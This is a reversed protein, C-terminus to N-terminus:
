FERPEPEPSMAEAAETPTMPQGGEETAPAPTPVEEAVPAAPSLESEIAEAAAVLVDNVTEPTTPEPTGVTSTDIEDTSTAPDSKVFDILEDQTQTPNTPDNESAAEEVEPAVEPPMEVPETAPTYSDILDEIGAELETEAAITAELTAVRDRLAVAEAKYGEADAQYKEANAIAAEAKAKEAEFKAQIANITTDKMASFSALFEVLRQLTPSVTTPTPSSM